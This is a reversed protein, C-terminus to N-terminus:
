RLPQFRPKASCYPNCINMHCRNNARAPIRIEFTALDCPGSSIVCLIQSTDQSKTARRFTRRLLVDSDDMTRGHAWDGACGLLEFGLIKCFSVAIQDSLGTYVWLEKVAISRAFDILACIASKGFGQRRFGPFIAFWGVCCVNQAM